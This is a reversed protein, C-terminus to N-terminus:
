LEILEFFCKKHVFLTISPAYFSQLMNNRFLFQYSSPQEQCNELLFGHIVEIMKVIACIYCSELRNEKSSSDGTDREPQNLFQRQPGDHSSVM